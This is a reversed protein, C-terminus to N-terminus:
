SNKASDSTHVQNKRIRTVLDCFIIAFASSLVFAILPTGVFWRMCFLLPCAILLAFVCQRAFELFFTRTPIDRTGFFVSRQLLAICISVGFISDIGIISVVVKVTKATSWEWPWTAAMWPLGNFVVLILVITAFDAGDSPWSKRQSM